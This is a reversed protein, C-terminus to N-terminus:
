VSGPKNRTQSIPIVEAKARRERKEVLERRKKAATVAARLKEHEKVYHDVNRTTTHGSIAMIDFHTGGGEAIASMGAKRLGHGSFSGNFINDKGQQFVPLGAAIVASRMVTFYTAPDLKFL